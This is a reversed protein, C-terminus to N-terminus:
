AIPYQSVAKYPLFHLRLLTVHNPGIDCVQSYAASSLSWDWKSKNPWCVHTQRELLATMSVWTIFGPYLSKTPYLSWPWLYPINLLFYRQPNEDSFDTYSKNCFSRWLFCYSPSVSWIGSDWRWLIRCM